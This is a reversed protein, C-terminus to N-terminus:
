TDENFHLQRHSPAREKLAYSLSLHHFLMEIHSVKIVQEVVKMKALNNWKENWTKLYSRISLGEDRNQHENCVLFEKYHDTEQLYKHVTSSPQQDLAM